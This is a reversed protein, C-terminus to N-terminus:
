GFVGMKLWNLVVPMLDMSFGDFKRLAPGFGASYRALLCSLAIRVAYWGENKGILKGM